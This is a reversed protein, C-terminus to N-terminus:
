FNLQIGVSMSKFTPVGLGARGAQYNDGSTAFVSVGAVEEPDIPVGNLNDWTFFNEASVYIRAKRIWAKRTLLNPLTYGLTVTKLRLYSMDLLYRDQPRMNFGDVSNAMNWPRPYFAGTNEPTWYDETFVKAMSGDASNFGALTLGSSGWMDRKGVGQFFVSFDFSKYDAGLRFGYEYRPTFNGIVERDGSNDITNDGDTIQGDGDLDKFKVDGPQFYFNGSQLYAQYVPNDGKLKYAKKGANKAGHSENLDILILSGNADREFDSEQYLRDTRYGWIEGYTKGAYNSGTGRATGYKTIETVADSVTFMGNIALGNGFRHNYDISIEWGTTRLNGYNGKPATTGTAGYTFIINENPVIMNKTDRQYWDFIFGLDNNLFRADVGFDLTVVDQWTIDAAIASPSGIYMVKTGASNLWGLQGSGLTSVYLSNAVTQDGIIGWSGRFKLSSLAPNAWQMFAEENVRWGASFSPFWRWQLDAPFKSSGDYRVNAELLYKDLLNYNIRGFYGLQAQWNKDGGSTQTGSAMNFQPNTIDDLGMRQGYSYEDVYTVRNLGAMFKFRNIENLDLNYTTYANITNRKANATQRNIMDVGSGVSTYEIYNLDYAPVLGNDPGAVMVANGSADRRPVGASWSDAGSFRTGPRLWIYEENSHSYDFNATWNETFTLKAGLDVSTYNRGMTATNAQQYENYPSRIANGNEDVGMPYQPGWRYLYYWPDLNTASAYAYSKERTSYIAGASVSLYKNFETSLRVSANNRTFKDKKAPKNMGNQDLYGLGINYATKGSKGSVSLTHNQTPAWERIMYEYPDYMRLGLKQATNNPNVIWDRGYVTPDNVGIKGSYKKEWEKALAIGEPTAMYFAGTYPQGPNNAIQASLAYELAGIGGMEYKKFPNQWSVNGSYSINVGDTKAGHKSTILVVGFTGKSGYISASAADKLVSISEIDDPNVLSISPIEVNDLLILPASSGEFSGIQGRIKITPDSGVEGSPIVISLGPTSGQLGRAVDAIPRGDLTKKVDVTSVAGTLNEKKQSGYGVVVVEDILQADPNLSIRLNTGAAMEVSTYGIYKVVITSTGGPVPFQFRGNADTAAGLTTGKAIVSAGVVPDGSEDVVTGSVLRDQAIALEMSIFFCAFLLGLRKM